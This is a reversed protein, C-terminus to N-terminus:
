PGPAPAMVPTRGARSIMSSIVPSAARRRARPQVAGARTAVEPGTRSLTETRTRELLALGSLGPLRDIRRDIRRALGHGETDGFLQRVMFDTEAPPMVGAGVPRWLHSLAQRTLWRARGSAALRSRAQTAYFDIHRGEQRMIRGLLADLTPHAARRALQAYGAQTSWENVAGWTMQVALVERGAAGAGLTMLLPRIRDRWGLGVRHAATRQAGAVEGHAALVGALAEGHWREEYAWPAAGPVHSHRKFTGFDFSM